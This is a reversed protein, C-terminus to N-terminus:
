GFATGTQGGHAVEEHARLADRVRERVRAAADISVTLSRVSSERLQEVAVERLRKELKVHNATATAYLRWLRVCEACYEM